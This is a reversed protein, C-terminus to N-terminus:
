SYETHVCQRGFVRHKNGLSKGILRASHDHYRAAHFPGQPFRDRGTETAYFHAETVRYLITKSRPHM